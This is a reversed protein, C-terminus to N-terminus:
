NRAVGERQAEPNFDDNGPNGGANSGFSVDIESPNRGAEEVYQWLEDLMPGLDELTELPPTKTTQAM